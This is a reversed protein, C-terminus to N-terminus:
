HSPLRSDALESASRTDPHNSGLTTQLNAYADRSAAQAQDLKGLGQFAKAQALYARGLNSSPVRNSGEALLLQIAHGADTAGASYQGSRVEINAKNIMLTSLYASCQGIRRM